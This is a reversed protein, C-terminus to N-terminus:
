RFANAPIEWIWEADLPYSRPPLAFEAGDARRAVLVIPEGAPVPAVRARAGAAVTGLGVEQAQPPAMRYAINLTSDTRNIVVLSALAARHRAEDDPVSRSSRGPFYACGVVLVAACPLVWRRTGLSTQRASSPAAKPQAVDM